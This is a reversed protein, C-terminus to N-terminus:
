QQRQRRQEELEKLTPYKKHLKELDNFLRKLKTEIDAGEILYVDKRSAPRKTQEGKSTIEEVAFVLEKMGGIVAAMEQAKAKLATDAAPQPTQKSLEDVRASAAKGENVKALLAKIEEDCLREDDLPFYGVLGKDRLQELFRNANALDEKVRNLEDQSATPQPAVSGMGLAAQDNQHAPMTPDGAAANRAATVVWSLPHIRAARVLARAAKLRVVSVDDDNDVAIQRLDRRIGHLAEKGERKETESIGPDDLELEDAFEKSM